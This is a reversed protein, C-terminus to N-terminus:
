DGLNYNLINSLLRYSGPVGAPLERFFSIGTYIFSGKGYEAVILSGTKEDEGPDNMGFIPTYKEDWEGPFYLGREHVWGEFDKSSLKNPTNLIPHKKDLFRIEAEEVTVRDRSLTIPYPGIEKTLLRHATNYQVIYNGGRNVYEMLVDYYFPIRKNVNYARIGAIIADYQELNEIRMDQDELEDVIFGTARLSEAVKDGAGVIYGIKKAKGTNLDLSVIRMDAKPYLSQPPFHDYEISVHSRAFEKNDVYARAKLVLDSGKSPATIMVKERHESNRNFLSFDFETPDIRWGDELLLKVKGEALESISKVLVEIEKSEGSKLIIVEESFNVTLKPSLDVPKYSEGEVPDTSRYQV